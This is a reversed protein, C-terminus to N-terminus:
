VAAPLEVALRRGPLGARLGGAPRAAAPGYAADEASAPLAGLLVTASFGLSPVIWAFAHNRRFSGLVLEDVYRALNASRELTGAPHSGFPVGTLLADYGVLLVALVAWQGLKPLHLLALSTVLYGVAIAQLANSYM